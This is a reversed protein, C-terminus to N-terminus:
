DTCLRFRKLCHFRSRGPRKLEKYLIHRLRTNHTWIASDRKHNTPTGGDQKSRKAPPEKTSHDNEMVHNTVPSEPPVAAESPEETIDIVLAGPEEDASFPPFYKM